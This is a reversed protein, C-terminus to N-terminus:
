PAPPPEGDPEGDPPEIPTEPPTDDALEPPQIGLAKGIERLYAMAVQNAAFLEPEPADGHLIWVKTVGTIQAWEDLRDFPVRPIVPREWDEVSRKSVNLLEAMEKQNLGAQKRALGLRESIRARDLEAMLSRIHAAHRNAVPVAHRATMKRPRNPRTVAVNM